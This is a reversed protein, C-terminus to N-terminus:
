ISYNINIGNEQGQTKLIAQMHGKDPHTAIGTDLKIYIKCTNSKNNYQRCM